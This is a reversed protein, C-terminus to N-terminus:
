QACKRRLAVMAKATKDVFTELFIDETSGDQIRNDFGSMAVHLLEHVLLEELDWDTRLRFVLSALKYKADSQAYAEGQDLKPVVRLKIDWDQLRLIEQWVPLLKRLLRISIRKTAAM